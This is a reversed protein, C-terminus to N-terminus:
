AYRVVGQGCAHRAPRYVDWGVNRAHNRRARKVTLRGEPWSDAVIEPMESAAVIEVASVFRNVIICDL